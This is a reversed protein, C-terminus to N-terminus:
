KLLKKKHLKKKNLKKQLKNVHLKKKNLDKKAAAEQKIKEQEAQKQLEILSPLTKQGGGPRNFAAQTKVTTIMLFILFLSRIKTNM